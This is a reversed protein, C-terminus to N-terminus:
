EAELVEVKLGRGIVQAVPLFASFASGGQLNSHAIELHAAGIGGRALTADIPTWRRQVYVETWMHFLFKRDYDITPVVILCNDTVWCPPESLRVEGSSGVRGILITEHSLNFDDTYGISGNAGFVEYSGKTRDVEGPSEGSRLRFYYKLRGSSWQVPIEGIWEVGSDRYEDYTKM